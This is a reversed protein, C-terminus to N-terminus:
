RPEEPPLGAEPSAPPQDSPHAQAVVPRIPHAQAIPPPGPSPHRRSAFLRRFPAVLDPWAPTTRRVLREEFRCYEEYGLRRYAAIAPPNDARVNLVVQDCYRLLEATVASTVAKALGRGRHDAQTLVNGVVALGAERNV